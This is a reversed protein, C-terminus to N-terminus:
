REPREAMSERPGAVEPHDVFYCAAEPNSPHRDKRRKSTPDFHIRHDECFILNPLCHEVPCPPGDHDPATARSSPAARPHPPPKIDPAEKGPSQPAPSYRGARDSNPETAPSERPPSSRIIGLLNEATGRAAFEDAIFPMVDAGHVRYCAALFNRKGPRRIKDGTTAQYQQVLRDLLAASPPALRFAPATAMRAKTYARSWRRASAREELFSSSSTSRAVRAYSSRSHAYRGSDEDAM